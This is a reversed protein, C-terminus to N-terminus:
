LFFLVFSFSPATGQGLDRLETAVGERGLKARPWALNGQPLPRQGLAGLGPREDPEEWERAAHSQASLTVERPKLKKM